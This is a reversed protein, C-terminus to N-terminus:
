GHVKTWNDQVAKIFDDTGAEGAILRQTEATLTKDMTATANNNFPIIGDADRLEGFAKLLDARVTGPEATVVSTDAPLFGQEFQLKGAEPSSMFNLFAAATDKNKSKASIAYGVSSGIAARTKGPFVAFGADSKLADSIKSADWNGDVFFLGEGAGFKAVAGQLDVSNASNPIYGAKTWEQLKEAGLRNGPTDFSTGKTGFAWKAANEAGDESQGISQVVFSAHGQANGLQLPLVGAEKAKAMDEELEKLTQPPGDIGVQKALAKNYYLGVESFGSPVAYLPGSGLTEGDEAVRWQSLGSASYTDEWGYAESYADLNLVLSNKVTNGVVNMLAIDPAKDSDLQLNIGKNYDEFSTATVNVKVNSHKQTFAEAIKKTAAGSEPTTALELVVDTSPIETSISDPAASPATAASGPACASLAVMAALGLAPLALTSKKM